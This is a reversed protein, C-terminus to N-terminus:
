DGSAKDVWELHGWLVNLDSLILVPIKHMHSPPPAVGMGHGAHLHESATETPVSLHLGRGSTHEEARLGAEM